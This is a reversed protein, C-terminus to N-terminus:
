VYHFKVRERLFIDHAEMAAPQNSSKGEGTCGFTANVGGRMGCYLRTDIVALMCPTLYGMDVQREADYSMRLLTAKQDDSKRQEDEVWMHGIGGKESLPRMADQTVCMHVYAEVEVQTYIGDSRKAPKMAFFGKLAGMHKLMWFLLAM